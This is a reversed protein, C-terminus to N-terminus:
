NDGFLNLLFYFINIFDLYFDLAGIIALSEVSKEETKIQNYTKKLKAADYLTLGLFIILGVISLGFNVVSSGIFMNIVSVIILTLLAGFLINGVKSLDMKVLLGLIFFVGFLIAAAFFAYAITGIEYALFIVSFSLGNVFSFLIFMLKAKRPNLKSVARSLMFVLALEVIILIIPLLPISFVLKQIEYNSAVINGTIATILLGIFMWIFVKNFFNSLGNDNKQIKLNKEEIIKM